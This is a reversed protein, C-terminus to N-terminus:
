NQKRTISALGKVMNQFERQKFNIVTTAKVNKQSLNSSERNSNLHIIKSQSKSSKKM